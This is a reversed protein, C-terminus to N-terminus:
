AWLWSSPTFGVNPTMQNGVVGFIETRQKTATYVVGPLYLYAVDLNRVDDHYIKLGAMVRQLNTPDQETIVQRPDEVTIVPQTTGDDFGVIAYGAGMTLM